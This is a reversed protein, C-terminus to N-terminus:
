HSDTPIVNLANNTQHVLVSPVTQMACLVNVSSQIVMPVLLVILPLTANVMLMIIYAQMVLLVLLQLPQVRRVCLLIVHKM